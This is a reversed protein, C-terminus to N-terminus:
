MIHRKSCANRQNERNYAHEHLFSKGVRLSQEHLGHLARMNILGPIFPSTRLPGTLRTRDLAAMSRPGADGCTELASGSRLAPLVM